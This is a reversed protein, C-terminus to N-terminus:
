VSMPTTEGQNRLDCTLVRFNKSLAQLHGKSMDKRLDSTAGPIFLLPPRDLSGALEFRMRIGRSQMFDAFPPELSPREPFSSACAHAAPSEDHIELDEEKMSM